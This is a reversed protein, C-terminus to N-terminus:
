TVRTLRPPARGGHKARGCVVSHLYYLQTLVPVDFFTKFGQCTETKGATELHFFFLFVSCKLLPLFHSIGSCTLPNLWILKFPFTHSPTGPASSWLPLTHSSVLFPSFPLFPTPLLIFSLLSLSVQSMGGPELSFARQDGSRRTWPLPTSLLHVSMQLFGILSECLLREEQTGDLVKKTESAAKLPLCDAAQRRRSM